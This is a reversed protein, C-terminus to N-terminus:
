PISQCMETYTSGHLDASGDARVCVAFVDDSHDCRASKESVRNRCGRYDEIRFSCLNNAKFTTSQLQSESLFSHNYM